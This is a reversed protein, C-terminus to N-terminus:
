EHDADITLHRSCGDRGRDRATQRRNQMPPHYLDVKM